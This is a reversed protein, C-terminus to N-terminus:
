SASLWLFMVVIAGDVLAFLAGKLVDAIAAEAVNVYLM